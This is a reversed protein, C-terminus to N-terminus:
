SPAARRSAARPQANTTAGAVILASACLAAATVINTWEAHSAPNAMVRPVHVILVWSGYMLGTLTAALRALVGSLIALGAAIQAVGTAAAWFEHQPIWAPVFDATFKFFVFHMVGHGVTCVGFCLRALLGGREILHSWRGQAQSPVGAALVLAAASIALTHFAADADNKLSAVLLPVHLAVFLAFFLGALLLAAARLTRGALLGLGGLILIAGTVWAWPVPAIAAPVPELGSIFSSFILRQVGFVIAVVAFLFRGVASQYAM